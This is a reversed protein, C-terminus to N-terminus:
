EALDLRVTPPSTPTRALTRAIDRLLQVQIEGTRLLSATGSISPGLFGGIQTLRDTGSPQSAVFAATARPTRPTRASNKPTGNKDLDLKDLDAQLQERLNDRTTAYFESIQEGLQTLGTQDALRRAEREAQQNAAFQREFDQVLGEAQQAPDRSEKLRRIRDTTINDAAAKQEEYIKTLQVGVELAAEQAAATREAEAQAAQLSDLSADTTAAIARYATALARFADSEASTWAIQAQKEMQGARITAEERAYTREQPTTAAALQKRLDLAKENAAAVRPDSEKLRQIFGDAIGDILSKAAVGAAIALGTLFEPSTFRALFQTTLKSGFGESLKANMESVARTASQSDVAIARLAPSAGNLAATKKAADELNKAAEATQRLASLDATGSIQYELATTAM